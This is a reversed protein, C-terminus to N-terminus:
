RANKNLKALIEDFTKSTEKQIQAIDNDGGQEQMPKGGKIIKKAM